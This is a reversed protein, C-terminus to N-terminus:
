MDRVEKLRASKGFRERMYYLKARRVRSSRKVEISAIFPSNTLFTREVGIRGIVHRVTFNSRIGSGKKKIVLGEFAQIREKNGEKIKMNVRVTDGVKVSPLDSRLNENEIQRIIPNM